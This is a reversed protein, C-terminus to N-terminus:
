GATGLHGSKTCDLADNPLGYGGVISVIIPISLQLLLLLYASLLLWCGHQCLLLCTAPIVHVFSKCQMVNNSQHNNNGLVGTPWVDLVASCMGCSLRSIGLCEELPCWVDSPVTSSSSLRYNALRKVVASLARLTDSCSSLAWPSAM